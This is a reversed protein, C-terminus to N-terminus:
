PIASILSRATEARATIAAELAGAQALTAKGDHDGVWITQVYPGTAAVVAYIVVSTSDDGSSLHFARARSPLAQLTTSVEAVQSNAGQPLWGITSDELDARTPHLSAVFASAQDDTGFRIVQCLVDIAPPFPPEGVMERWTSFYGGAVGDAHLESRRRAPDSALDALNGLSFGGSTQPSYDPPVDARICALTDLPIEAPSSKGAQCSTGLLLLLGAALASSRALPTGGRPQRALSGM